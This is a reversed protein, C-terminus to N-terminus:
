QLATTVVKQNKEGATKQAFIALERDADQTKGIKRYVLSLRYHIKFDAPDLAAAQELQKLSKEYRGDKTYIKELALHAEVLSPDIKLAANFYKEAGGDNGGDAAMDGLEYLAQPHDPNLKLEELLETRAADFSQNKWYLSGIAFHINQLEPKQKLASRYEAIAEDDKNSTEFLQAKLEHARYSNPDSDFVALATLYALIQYGEAIQYIPKDKATEREFTHVASMWHSIQEKLESGALKTERYALSGDVIPDTQSSATQSISGTAKSATWEVKFRLRENNLLLRQAATYQENADKWNEQTEYAHARALNAYVSDGFAKQLRSYADDALHGYAKSLHYLVDIDDSNISEAKELEGAADRFNSRAYFTYGLYSHILPNDPQLAAARHLRNLASTYNHAGFSIVGLFFNPGALEPKLKVAKEYATTAQNLKSQQYYINGLNAYAEAMQPQLKIIEQYKVAATALDGSQQAQKAEAYVSQLDAQALLARGGFLAM